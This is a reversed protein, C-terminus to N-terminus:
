IIMGALECWCLRIVRAIEFTNLYHRTRARQAYTMNLISVLFDTEHSNDYSFAVVIRKDAIENRQVHAHVPTKGDGELQQICDKKLYILQLICVGYLLDYSFPIKAGKSM